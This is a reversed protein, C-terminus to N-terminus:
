TGVRLIGMKESNRWWGRFGELDFLEFDEPWPVSPDFHEVMAMLKCPRELAKEVVPEYLQRLQFWADTTHNHKAEVILTHYPFEVLIDPQCWRTGHTDRFTFWPGGRVGPLKLDNFVQHARKEFRVGALQAVSPKEEASKAFFPPHQSLWASQLNEVKRFGTPAAVGAERAPLPNLIPLM